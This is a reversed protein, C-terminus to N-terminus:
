AETKYPLRPAMAAPLPGPGYTLMQPTPGTTQAARQQVAMARGEPSLTVRDVVGYPPQFSRDGEARNGPLRKPPSLRDVPRVERSIRPTQADMIRDM